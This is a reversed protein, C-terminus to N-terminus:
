TGTMCIRKGEPDQEQGSVAHQLLGARALLSILEKPSTIMAPMNCSGTFHEKQHFFHRGIKCSCSM